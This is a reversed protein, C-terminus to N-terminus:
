KPPLVFHGFLSKDTGQDDTLGAAGRGNDVAGGVADDLGAQLIGVDGLHVACEVADLADQVILQHDHVLFIGCLQGVHQM